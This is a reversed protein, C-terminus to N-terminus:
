RSRTFSGFSTNLSRRSRGGVAGNVGGSSIGGRSSAPVGIQGSTLPLAPPMGLLQVKANWDGLEELKTKVSKIRDADLIEDGSPQVIIESIELESM